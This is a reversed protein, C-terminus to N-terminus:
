IKFKMPFQYNTISFKILEPRESNTEVEM